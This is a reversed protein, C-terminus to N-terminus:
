GVRGSSQARSLIERRAREVASNVVTTRRATDTIGQATLLREAEARATQEAIQLEVNLEARARRVARQANLRGIEAADTTAAIQGNIATEEADGAARVRDADAREPTGAAPLPANGAIQSTRDIATDSADKSWQTNQRQLAQNAQQAQEQARERERLTRDERFVQNARRRDIYGRTAVNGVKRAAREWISQSGLRGERELTAQHEAEIKKRAESRRHIPDIYKNGASKLLGFGTSAGGIATSFYQAPAKVNFMGRVMEPIAPTGLLLGYALLIRLTDISFGGLLPLTTAQWYKPDSGLIFGAFLFVAFVIPFILANAVIGRVWYSIGGGRGPISASLILLPSGLTFMLIQIYSTLLGVFLRLFQVLLAILLILPLLFSALTAIIASPGGPVGTAGTLASGAGIVLSSAVVGGFGLGLVGGVIGAIVAPIVVSIPVQVPGAGVTEGGSSVSNLTDAVGSFATSRTDWFREIGAYGFMKLINSDKAQAEADFVNNAKPGGQAQIFVQAVVQTGVFATDVLLASIFYSFTVLILGVVLGPLAQQVTIVTQPNIKRRFMILFGTIVFILTFGAYSINRSVQWLLLIPRIIGEGSGTVSQAYAKPPTIGINEGLNALYQVSSTPPAYMAVVMNGVMGIAGSSNQNITVPQAEVTGTAPNVKLQDGYVKVGFLNFGALGNVGGILFNRLFRQIHIDDTYNCETLTTAGSSAPQAACPNTSSTSPSTTGTTGTPQSSGGTSTGAPPQSTGGSPTETTTGSSIPHCQGCSSEPNETSIDCVGNSNITGTCTKEQGDPCSPRDNATCASQAQITVTFLLFCATFLLCTFLKPLKM